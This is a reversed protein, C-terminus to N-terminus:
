SDVGCSCKCIGYAGTAPLYIILESFCTKICKLFLTKYGIKMMIKKIFTAIETNKEHPDNPPKLM